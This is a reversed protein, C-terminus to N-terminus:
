PDFRQPRAIVRGIKFRDEAIVGERKNAMAKRTEGRYGGEAVRMVVPSSGIPWNRSGRPSFVLGHVKVTFNKGRSVYTVEIEQQDMVNRFGKVDGGILAAGGAVMSWRRLLEGKARGTKEDFETLKFLGLRCINDDIPLDKPEAVALLVPSHSTIATTRGQEIMAGLLDSTARRAKASNDGMLTAGTALLIGMISITVMLEVLTFGHSFRRQFHVNSSHVPIRISDPPRSLACGTGVCPLWVVM